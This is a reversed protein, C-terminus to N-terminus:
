SQTATPFEGVWAITRVILPPRLQTFALGPTAMAWRKKRATAQLEAWTQPAPPLASGTVVVSPPAVQVATEPDDMVLIVPMVQGEDVAHTPTAMSPDPDGAVM